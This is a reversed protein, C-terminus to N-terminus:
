GYFALYVHVMKEARIKITNKDGIFRQAPNMETTTEIRGADFPPLVVNDDDYATCFNGSSKYIVYRADDPIDVVQQVGPQMTLVLMDDSVPVCEPFHNLNVGKLILKKM